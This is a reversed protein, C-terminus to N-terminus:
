INMDWGSIDLSFFGPSKYGPKKSGATQIQRMCVFRYFYM